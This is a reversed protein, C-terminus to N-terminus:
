GVGVFDAADMGDAVGDAEEFQHASDSAIFASQTTKM